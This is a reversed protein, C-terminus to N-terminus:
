NIIKKGNVIYIGHPLDDLSANEVRVAKGDITYVVNNRITSTDNPITSISTTTNDSSNLISLTFAKANEGEDDNFWFRFGKVDMDSTLHYMKGNSFVYSGTPCTGQIYTGSVKVKGKSYDGQTGYESDNLSPIDTTWDFTRRGILYFDDDIITTTTGENYTFTLHTPKKSPKILYYQGAEIANGDSSLTMALFDISTKSSSITGVGHLKALQVDDGFASKLQAMTVNLPLVITNWKGVTFSRKLLVNVNTKSVQMYDKETKTEDLIMAEKGYYYVAVNDIGAFDTDFYYSNGNATKIRASKTAENKELGITITQGKQAEVVVNVIYADSTAAVEQSFTKWDDTNVTVAGTSSNQTCKSAMIASALPKLDTTVPTGNDVKAYLQAKHGHYFGLCQILYRGDAPATFSQEVKGIGELSGFSYQGGNAYPAQLKRFVAQDWPTLTADSAQINPLMNATKVRYNASPLYDTGNTNVNAWDFIYDGDTPSATSTVKWKGFEADRDHDFNPDNLLYTLNANLGGFEDANATTLMKEVEDVTVLRWQYNLSDATPKFNNNAADQFTITNNGVFTNEDTSYIGHGYVAGLWLNKDNTSLSQKTNHIIEKMYYTYVDSSADTEVREFTWQRTYGDGNILGNPQANFIVYGGGAGNTGESFSNLTTYIPYNIGFCVGNIAAGSVDTRASAGSYIIKHANKNGWTETDTYDSVLYMGAGYDQYLLMGQVGWLGGQMAFRGTGVNYLFFKTSNSLNDVSTGKWRTTTNSDAAWSSTPMLLSLATILLAWTAIKLSKM